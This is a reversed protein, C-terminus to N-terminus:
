DPPASSVDSSVELRSGHLRLVQDALALGLGLGRTTRTHHDGGRTFRETIRDLDDAHIGPGDDRVEITCAGAACTTTVRIVTGPPTHREANTLLNDVVRELLAADGAVIAPALETVIEHDALLPALRELCGRVLPEVEFDDADVEVLGRDLRATDLLSTLIRTLSSANARLRDFLEELQQDDLHTRHRQITEALGDIVTLPTRLEHSVTAVFDQQLTRLSRLRDLLRRDEDIARSLTLARGAHDALLEFAVIEPEEYGGTRYRGAVLVGIVEDEVWIPVAIAARLGVTTYTSMAAQETQYDNTHQLRATRLALGAFGRDPPFTEDLLEDPVNYTAGYRLMGDPGLLYVGATDSEMRATAAAVAHLVDAEDATTATRAADVVALFSRRSAEAEAERQAARDMTQGIVWASLGALTAVAALLFLEYAIDGFGGGTTAIATAGLLSSGAIVAYTGLSITLAATGYMVALFLLADADGPDSAAYTTLVGVVIVSVIAVLLREQAAASLRRPWSLVALGALLLIIPAASAVLVGPGLPIEDPPGYLGIASSVLLTVALVGSAVRGILARTRLPIPTV